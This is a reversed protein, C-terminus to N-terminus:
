GEFIKTEPITASFDTAARKAFAIGLNEVSICKYKQPLLWDIAPGIHNFMGTNANGIIGAPRYISLRRFGVEACQQECLGKVHNYWGGGAGTRTIISYTGEVDAGAASLLGFIEVGQAKCHRAFAVNLQCDVQMLEDKEVKSAKGVGLTTLGCQHGRLDV